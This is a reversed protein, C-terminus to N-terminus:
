SIIYKSQKVEQLELDDLLVKDLLPLGKPVIQKTWEELPNSEFLEVFAERFHENLKEVDNPLVGYSDHIPWFSIVGDKLCREVTRYLLTADLSHIFNPAIGNLMRLYHTEHTPHYLVLNGLPTRLRQRKERKIRQLVPFKYIPTYWFADDETKLAEKLATKLYIQGRKAGKVVKAIAKDNLNSILSAIVWKDGEWFVQNNDEYESLLEYVQEYMGRRTVSYPQTMVNRKTLKRTIKDKISLAEISTSRTHEVGDKTTYTIEKPYDGTQLYDSVVDAVQKYIDNVGEGNNVVNVAKAGEKDKLLGSYMQIGSCTADLQVPTHVPEKPDKLYSGYAFCFALYLLPSDADYWLKINAIPDNAIKLIDEQKEEIIKIREEYILKDYGLCNAGHVKLWFLGTDNLVQGEAFELLCKINDSMQPHLYGQIPYMRGRFDLNYSFYVRDYKKFREAVELAMKYALRKSEIRKLKADQDDMARLWNKKHEYNIFKGDEDLEGFDEKPVLEHINLTEMIPIEGYLVPNSTSSRPDVLNYKIITSITELIRKNIRYPTQQIKNVISMLRELDPEKSEVIHKDKISRFKIFPIKRQTYYGGSGELAEWDKPPYVLPYYTTILSGFFVKSRLFLAKVSDSLTVGYSTDKNKFVKILNCGSKEVLDICTAGLVKATDGQIAKSHKFRRALMRKQKKVEHDGKRKNHNEIYAYLKPREQRMMEVDYYTKFVKVVMNSTQLVKHEDQKLLIGLLTKILVYAINDASGFTDKLYMQCKKHNGRLPLKLYEKIYNSLSEITAKIILIVEKSDQISGSEIAKSLKTDYKDLSTNWAEEELRIQEILKPHLRAM